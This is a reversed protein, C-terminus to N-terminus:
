VGRPMTGQELMVRAENYAKLIGARETPTYGTDKGTGIAVLEARAQLWGATWGEDYGARYDESLPDPTM